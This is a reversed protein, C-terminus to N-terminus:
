TPSTPWVLHRYGQDPWAGEKGICQQTCGQWKAKETKPANAFSRVAAKADDYIDTQGDVRSDDYFLEAGVPPIKMFNSIQTNEFIQRWFELKM